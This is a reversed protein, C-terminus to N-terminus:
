TVWNKQNDSRLIASCIKSYRKRTLMQSDRSKKQQNLLFLSHNLGKKIRTWCNEKMRNANVCLYMDFICSWSIIYSWGSRRQEDFGKVHVCCEPEKLDGHISFFFFWQKEIFLCHLKGDFELFFRRITRGAVIKRTWFFKENLFYRPIKLTQGPNPRIVYGYTQVNMRIWSNRCDRFMGLKEQIYASIADAAQGESDPVRAIVDDMVKAVIMQSVSSGQETFIEYVGSKKKCHWWPTRSWELVKTIKTKLGESQSLVHGNICCLPSKDWQTGLVIEKKSNNKELQWAPFTVLKKKRWWWKDMAAEANWM